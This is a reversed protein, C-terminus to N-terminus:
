KPMVNLSDQFKEKAYRIIDASNTFAMYNTPVEFLSYDPKGIKVNQFDFKTIGGNAHAEIKIPFQQLDTACWLDANETPHNPESVVANIKVCPHEGVIDQGLQTKQITLDNAQYNIQNLVADSIPFTTYAQIGPFILYLQKTDIRTIIDIKEVHMIKMNAKVEPPLPWMGMVDIEQRMCNTSVELDMPLSMRLAGQADCLGMNVEASFEPTGVFKSFFTKVLPM